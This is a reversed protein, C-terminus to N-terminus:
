KAVFDKSEEKEAEKNLFEKVKEKFRDENKIEKINAPLSNWDKMATYFFTKTGQSGISPIFFNHQYSRTNTRNVNENLFKFNSSMYSPCTKNVIKHVHGLKLQKVRDTVNLFGAKNREKYGIHSMHGLKLIFRIMKNQAVQLKKTLGINIGPFWSSCSYDFHCQILATCLTQRSKTTLITKYRYLFKLRTIVKKIIENVITEGSLEEDLQLGLYKVSKVNKVIENNCIVDFSNVKNLNYRTGFLISETKGIHLSLKNDILWNRCSNLEKSLQDAIQKPDNGSILLASDDAYLLLKCKVSIPMDNIYCLFLLPGLISGQPVGCNVFGADSLTDNAEM